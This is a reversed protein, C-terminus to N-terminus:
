SRYSVTNWVNKFQKMVLFENIYYTDTIKGHYIVMLGVM